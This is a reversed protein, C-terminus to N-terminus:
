GRWNIRGTSQAFYRGDEAWFRTILDQGEAFGFSPGKMWVPPLVGLFYYFLEQDCELKEGSHMVEVFAAFDAAKTFIRETATSM